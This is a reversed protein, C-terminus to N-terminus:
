ESRAIFGDVDSTGNTLLLDVLESFRTLDFIVVACSIKESFGAASM